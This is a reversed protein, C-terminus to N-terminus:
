GSFDVIRTFLCVVEFEDELKGGRRIVDKEFGTDSGYATRDQIQDVGMIQKSTSVSTVSFDLLGFGMILFVFRVLLIGFFMIEVAKDVILFEKTIFDFSSVLIEGFGFVDGKDFSKDASHIIIGIEFGALFPDDVIKTDAGELFDTRDGFLNAEKTMWPPM